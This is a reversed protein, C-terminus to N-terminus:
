QLVPKDKKKKPKVELYSEEGEKGQIKEQSVKKIKIKCFCFFAIAAPASPLPPQAWTETQKISLFTSWAKHYKLTEM